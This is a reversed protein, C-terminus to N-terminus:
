LKPGDGREFLSTIKQAWREAAEESISNGDYSVGFSVIGNGDTSSGVLFENDRARVGMKLGRFDAVFDKGNVGFSPDDLNFQGPPFFSATSGISSVGCTAGFQSSNAPYAGQPNIGTKRDDPLKGEVREIQYLYGSALLRGPSHPDLSLSTHVGGTSGTKLRKQYVRLQRNAQRALLRFRGEIPLSSPLFPMVIGDSFALMCSEAPPTWGFFTRPNLPFSAAFPRREADPINPHHQRELEMMSLGALAFAGAGVSVNISRCTSILRHSASPSLSATCHFSNNPPRREASYDFLKSFTPPLSATEALRQSRRLPNTFTAPLSKRIHRLVRMIVWFWRQRAKTGSISPYLDEQAPPLQSEISEASRFSEIEREIAISPTNLIRLFHSFWNYASLGDSTQHAIVVLFHCLFNGNPLAELPLVHLRSLCISPDIVRGVNLIHRHLERPNVDPYFDEVWVISKLTEDLVDQTSDQLEIVFEREEGGQAKSQLMIHQLCLNAWALAIKRRFDKKSLSHRIELTFLANMDARGGYDTGDTDFSWEVLGLPRKYAKKGNITTPHWAHYNNAYRALWDKSHEQRNNRDM